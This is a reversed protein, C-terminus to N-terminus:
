TGICGIVNRYLDLKSFRCASPHHFAPATLVIPCDFRPPPSREDRGAGSWARLVLLLRQRKALDEMMETAGKIDAFLAAITQREGVIASAEAQEAVVPRLRTLWPEGREACISAAAAFVGAEDAPTLDAPVIFEFVIGSGYPLSLVFRFIPEIAEATLHQTRM